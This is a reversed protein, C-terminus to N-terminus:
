INEKKNFITFAVGFGAVVVLGLLWAMNVNDGADPSVVNETKDDKDVETKNLKEMEAKAAELLMVFKKDLLKREAESLANYAALAEKIAAIDNKTITTPLKSILEEVAKVKKLSVSESGSESGDVTTDGNGTGGNETGSNGTGPKDEPEVPRDPVERIHGCDNCDADYMDTYVHVDDNESITIVDSYIKSGDDLSIECIYEGPEHKTLKKETQGEIADGAFIETTYIDATFEESAAIAIIYLGTKEINYTAVNDVFNLDFVDDTANDMVRAILINSTSVEINLIQGPRMLGAIYVFSAGDTYQSNWKGDEYIGYMKMMPIDNEGLAEEEEQSSPAMVCKRIFYEVTCWQYSVVKDSYNVEVSLDRLTPQKKVAVEMEVVDSIFQREGCTAKCLYIQGIVPASLKPETEGEIAELEGIDEIYINATFEEDARIIIDLMTFSNSVEAVYVGDEYTFTLNGTGESVEGQFDEPLEVVIKDGYEVEITIYIGGEDSIWAGTDTDYDGVRSSDVNQQNDSLPGDVDIIERLVKNVKYWQYDVNKNYNLEFIPNGATPQTKVMLQGVIYDSWLVENGKSVKCCYVKGDEYDTLTNTTQGEIPQSATIDDLHMKVSIEDETLIRIVYIGDEKASWMFKNNDVLTEKCVISGEATYLEIKASISDTFDLFLSEDEKMSVQIIYIDSFARRNQAWMEDEKYYELTSYTCLQEDMCVNNGSVVTYRKDGRELEIKVSINGSGDCSLDCLGENTIEREYVGAVCNALNGKVSVRSVSDDQPTVYLKDGAEADILLGLYGNTGSWIKTEEDYEVSGTIDYPVYMYNNDEDIISCVLSSNQAEVCEYWQYEVGDTKNVEVTPNGVTPQKTIELAEQEEAMAGFSISGMVMSVTCVATILKKMINKRM